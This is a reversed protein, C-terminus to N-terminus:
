EYLVINTQNNLLVLIENYNNIKCLYKSYPFIQRIAIKSVINMLNYKQLLYKVFELRNYLCANVFSNKFVLEYNKYEIDVNIYYECCEVFSTYEDDRIYQLLSNNINKNM